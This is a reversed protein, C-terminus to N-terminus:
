YGLFEDLFTPYGMGDMASMEAVWDLVPGATFEPVNWAQNFNMDPANNTTTTTNNDTYNSYGM